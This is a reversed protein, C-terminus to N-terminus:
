GQLFRSLDIQLWDSAGTVRLWLTKTEPIVVMQYVTLENMAGGNELSTSVIEMMKHADIKGKSSECLSILNSRRTQGYWCANDSPVKFLWEPNVYYNTSVLLGEPLDAGGTKVGVQCWEYSVAKQSDAVNIIYSSNCCTTNFFLEWDELEDTEFLTSFLTTTGTIRMNQTKINTSPTGNNLEMFIGKENLGNVAYIEGVYGITAVALASDAPHYVTVVVDNKLQSFAASYDYNRGIVMTGGSYAGWCFAASCKPLGGIREVANVEQMEEITLGSTESAGRMFSLVRYPTQRRQVNIIEEAMEDNNKILDRVFAHVEELEAKLLMGYQRGMEYWTGHLNVVNVKNKSVRVGQEFTQEVNRITQPVAIESDAETCSTNAEVVESVWANEYIEGTSEKSNCVAHSTTTFAILCVILILQNQPLLSLKRNM